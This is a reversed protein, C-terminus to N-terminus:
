PPYLLRGVAVHRHTTHTQARSAPVNRCPQLVASAPDAICEGMGDGRVVPRHRGQDEAKPPTGPVDILLGTLDSYLESRALEEDLRTLRNKSMKMEEAQAVRRGTTGHATVLVRPSGAALLVLRHRDQSIPRTDARNGLRVAAPPPSHTRGPLDRRHVAHTAM